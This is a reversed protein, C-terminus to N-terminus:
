SFYPMLGEFIATYIKGQQKESIKIQILISLLQILFPPSVDNLGTVKGQLNYM